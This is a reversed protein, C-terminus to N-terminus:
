GKIANVNRDGRFSNRWLAFQSGFNTISRSPLVPVLFLVRAASKREKKPLNVADSRGREKRSVAFLM